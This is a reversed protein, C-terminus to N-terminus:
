ISTGSVFWNTNLIAFDITNVIGDANIDAAPDSIGWKSTLLSFDLSNVINDNNLDGGKLSGFALTLPSNLATNAITKSLFNNVKVKYDYNGAPVGTITFTANGTTNTSVDTKEFVVTTTGPNLVKFNTGSSAHNTRGQLNLTVTTAVDAPVITYVGNTVSALMDTYTVKSTVNSDVTSDLTFDFTVNSIAIRLAKFTITALTGTGTYGTGGPTIIGSINIKGTTSNVSNIPYSAYLTGPAIQIGAVSTNSDQVELDAPNYNIIVDSGATEQGNTNLVINVTFTSNITRTSTSPSLALTVGTIAAQPAIQGTRLLIIFVGISAVVLVGILIFFLKKKM